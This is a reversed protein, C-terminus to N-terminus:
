AQALGNGCGASSSHGNASPEGGERVEMLPLPARVVIKGRDSLNDRIWEENLVMDDFDKWIRTDNACSYRRCVGPRDAYVNCRGTATDNHSCYSNSGHRIFYPFGLDWKVKGAEVEEATLAFRLKCCVAHCVHMREECNVEVRAEAEEPDTALAISPWTARMEGPLVDGKDPVEEGAEAEEVGEPTEGEAEEEQESEAESGSLFGVLKNVNAEVTSLREIVERLAAQTFQSGREMQRELESLPEDQPM